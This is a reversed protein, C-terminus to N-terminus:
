LVLAEDELGEWVSDEGGGNLPQSTAFVSQPEIEAVIVEPKVFTEKM